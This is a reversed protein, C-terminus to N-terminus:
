PAPSKEPPYARAFLGLSGVISEVGGRRALMFSLGSLPKEPKVTLEFTGPDLLFAHATRYVQQIMKNAPTNGQLTLPHAEFLQDVYVDPRMQVSAAKQALSSRLFGFDTLKVTGARLTVLALQAPISVTEPFNGLEIFGSVAGLAPATFQDLTFTLIKQASDYAVTSAVDAKILAPLPAEIGLGTLLQSVGAAPLMLNKTQLHLAPTAARESTAQMLDFGGIQQGDSMVVAQALELQRPPNKLLGSSWAGDFPPLLHTVLLDKGNIRNLRWTEQHSFQRCNAKIASVSAEALKFAPELGSLQAQDVTVACSPGVGTVRWVRDALTLNTMSLSTFAAQDLAASSLPLVPRDLELAGLTAVVAGEAKNEALTVGDAKLHGFSLSTGNYFPLGSLVAHPATLVMPGRVPDQWTFRLDTFTLRQAFAESEVSKYSFAAGQPMVANLASLMGKGGSGMLYTWAGALGLAAVVFLVLASILLKKTM